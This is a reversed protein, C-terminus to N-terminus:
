VLNECPFHTVKLAGGVHLRIHPHAPKEILNAAAPVYQKFRELLDIVYSKQSLFLGGYATQMIRM